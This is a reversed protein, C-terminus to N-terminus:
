YSPPMQGNAPGPVMVHGRYEGLVLKRMYPELPELKDMNGDWTEILESHGSEIDGIAADVQNRFGTAGPGKVVAAMTVLSGKSIIVTMEGYKLENLSGEESQFSDGVFTQVVMLMGSVIDPDMDSDKQSTYHDMLINKPSILFINEIYTEGEVPPGSMDSPDIHLSKAKPLISFKMARSLSDRLSRLLPNIRGPTTDGDSGDDPASDGEPGDGMDAMKALLGTSQDAPASPSKEGEGKEGSREAEEGGRVGVGAGGVGGGAGGVGGGGGTAATRIGADADGDPTGPGGAGGELFAGGLEEMGMTEAGGASEELFTGGLVEMRTTSGDKTNWGGDGGETTDARLTDPGPETPVPWGDAVGGGVSSGASGPDDSPGSSGTGDGTGDGRASRRRWLVVVVLLIAAAMLILLVPMWLSLADGSFILLGGQSHTVSSADRGVSPEDGAVAADKEGATAPAPLQLLLLLLAAFLTLVTYIRAIPMGGSGSGTLDIEPVVSFKQTYIRKM